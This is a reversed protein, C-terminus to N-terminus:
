GAHAPGLVFGGCDGDGIHNLIDVFGTMARLREPAPIPHDAQAALAIDNVYNESALFQGPDSDFFSRRIKLGLKAALLHMGRPSPIFLHRPADLAYWHQRFKRWAFCGAVPVRVLIHGGDALRARARRLAALPDAVHELSHHFMVLDYTGSAQEIGCNDITLEPGHSAPKALFPDIGKLRTFGDRRLKLLLQGGGCGVDLLRASTSLGLGEFWDLYNPKRRSSAALLRGVIGSDAGLWANTRRRRLATELPSSTKAAASYSYYDPPYHRALDAPVEAIQLTGCGLCEFYLFEERSGFYIERFVHEHHRDRAGCAVCIREPPTASARTM